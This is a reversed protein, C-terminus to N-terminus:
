EDFRIPPVTEPAESEEDPGTIPTEAEMEQTPEHTLETVPDEVFETPTEMISDEEPIKEPESPIEEVIAEPEEPAAIATAAEEALSGLALSLIMIFVLLMSLYRKM